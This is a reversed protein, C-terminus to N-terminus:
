GNCRPDAERRDNCQNYAPGWAKYAPVSCRKDVVSMGSGKVRWVEYCSTINGNPLMPQEECSGCSYTIPDEKEEDDCRGDARATLNLGMAVVFVIAHGLSQKMFEGETQKLVHEITKTISGKPLM